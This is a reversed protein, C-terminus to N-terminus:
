FRGDVKVESPTVVVNLEKLQQGTPTLMENLDFTKGRFKDISGEAMRLLMSVARNASSLEVDSVRLTMKAPDYTLSARADAKASIISKRVRASGRVQFDNGVQHMDFDLDQVAIGKEHAGVEVAERVAQKFATMTMHASFEGTMAKPAQDELGFWVKGDKEVVWNFPVKEVQLDFNVPLGQVTLPHAKVMVKDIQAPIRDASVVSSQQVQGKARDAVSSDVQTSVGSLDARLLAVNPPVNITTEVSHSGGTEGLVEQLSQTLRDSLAAGSTPVEEGVYFRSQLITQWSNQTTPAM